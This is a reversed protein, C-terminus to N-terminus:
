SVQGSMMPRNVEARARSRINQAANRDANCQFACRQCTFESQSKRNSRECHGCASCTQSTYRANVTVVPVGARRAKYEIFTRLQAFAWGYFRSRQRRRLRVRERIHTLEELAIGRGSRQATEVIRKSIQHNIDRRYRGERARTRNIAQHINRPRKGARKRGSAAQGLKGRREALKRRMAQVGHDQFAEGESTVAVHEIGLDVGIFDTAPLPTGDPLDVTVLLFWKGDNRLVLDAQGKAFGFQERQYQGMLFPVVVRGSPVVSLSVRDVGKFGYNKGQSYPIAAHPRFTPRKSRDRKYAECVQAIVRIAMDAPLSFRDRLERYHWKQLEFKSATQEQHALGALWNAAANFREVTERLTVAQTPDPLLQLQLTLKM